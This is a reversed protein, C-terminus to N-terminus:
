QSQLTCPSSLCQESEPFSFISKQLYLENSFYYHMTATHDKYYEGAISLTECYLIVVCKSRIISWSMVIISAEMADSGNVM